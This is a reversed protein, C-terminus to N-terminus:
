INSVVYIAQFSLAECHTLSLALFLTYLRENVIM